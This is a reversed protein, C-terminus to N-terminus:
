RLTAIYNSKGPGELRPTYASIPLLRGGPVIRFLRYRYGRLLDWYDKFWVRADVAADSFEFSLTRIRGERLLQVAGQLASYEHGEIDMKLFHVTEIRREAAFKDLTVTAITELGKFVGGEEGTVRQVLSAQSSGSRPGYLVTEGSENSLAAQVIEVKACPKLKRHLKQLSTTSPEFDYIKDIRDGALQLLEQSWRGVHAGADIVIAGSSPLLEVAAKVEAM